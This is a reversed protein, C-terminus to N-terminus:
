DQKEYIVIEFDETVPNALLLACMSEIQSKAEDKSAAVLDIEITKLVSLRSINDFGLNKLSNYVVVAEPSLVDPKNNISVKAVFHKLSMKM